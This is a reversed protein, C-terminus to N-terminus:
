KVFQVIAEGLTTFSATFQDGPEAEVAASLAGFLIVEGAKLNVGYEHLKNALWAVCVAPDGLVDTSNGENVVENNKLLKMHLSKVDVDSVKVKNTGLVYLGCSANDAV